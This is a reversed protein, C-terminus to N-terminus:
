LIEIKVKKIIAKEYGYNRFGVKGYSNELLLDNTFVQENDIFLKISQGNVVARVNFWSTLQKKHEVELDNRVHWAVQIRDIVFSGKHESSEAAYPITIKRHPIVKEHTIQFMYYNQLDKARVIIGICNNIIKSEFSFIYNEWFTGKKTLGGEDSGTVTLEGNSCKWGIYDWNEDLPRKFDDNFAVSLQKRIKRYQLALYIVALTLTAGWIIARYETVYGLVTRLLSEPKWNITTILASLVSLIVGIISGVASITDGTDVIRKSIREKLTKSKLIM